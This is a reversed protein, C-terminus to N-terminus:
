IITEYSQVQSKFHVISFITLIFELYTEGLPFYNLIAYNFLISKVAFTNCRTSIAIDTTNNIDGYEIIFSYIIFANIIVKITCWFITLLISAVIEEESVVEEGKILLFFDIFFSLVLNAATYLIISFSEYCEHQLIISILFSIVFFYLLFIDVFFFISWIFRLPTKYLPSPGSIRRRFVTRRIKEYLGINGYISM